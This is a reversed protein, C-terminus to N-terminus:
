TCQRLSRSIEDLLREADVRLTVVPLVYDAHSIRRSLPTLAATARPVELRDPARAVFSVFEAGRMSTIWADELADWPLFADGAWSRHLLGDDLLAVVQGRLAQVVNLPGFTLGMVVCGAGVIRLAPPTPDGDWELAGIAICFGIVAFGLGVM